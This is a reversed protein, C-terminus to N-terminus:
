WGTGPTGTPCTNASSPPTGKRQDMYRWWGQLDYECAYVIRKREMPTEQPLVGPDLGEPHKEKWYRRTLLADCEGGKCIVMGGKIDFYRRTLVLHGITVVIYTSRGGPPPVIYWTRTENHRAILNVESGPPIPQSFDGNKCGEWLRRDTGAEAKKETGRLLALPSLAMLGKLLLRRNM